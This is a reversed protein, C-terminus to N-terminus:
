TRGTARLDEGAPGLMGVERAQCCAQWLAEDPTAAEAHIRNEWNTGDVLWTSGFGTWGFSWGARHLRDYSEDISLYTLPM